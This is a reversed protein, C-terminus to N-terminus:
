KKSTKKANAVSSGGFKLVRMYLKIIKSNIKIFSLCNKYYVAFRGFSLISIFGVPQPLQPPSLDVLVSTINSIKINM